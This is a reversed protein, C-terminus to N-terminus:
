PSVPVFSNDLLDLSAKRVMGSGSLHDEPAFKLLQVPLNRALFSSPEISVNCFLFITPLVRELTWLRTAFKKDLTINEGTLWTQLSLMALAGVIHFHDLPRETAKGVRQSMNDLTSKVYTLLENLLKHNSRLEAATIPSNFFSQICKELLSGSLLQDEITFLAQEITEIKGMEESAGNGTTGNQFDFAVCMICLNM